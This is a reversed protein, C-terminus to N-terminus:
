QEEEVTRHATITRKQGRWDVWEWVEVNKASAKVMPASSTVTTLKRSEIFAMVINIIPFHWIGLPGTFRASM